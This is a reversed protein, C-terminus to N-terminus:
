GAAPDTLWLNGAADHSAVLGAREGAAVVVAEAERM